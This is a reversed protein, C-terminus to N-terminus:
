HDKWVIEGCQNNFDVEVEFDHKEYFHILRDVHDWDREAIDGTIAPINQERAIHKLYNMCITGYGKNAPGKIDGIHITDDKKQYTAHLSFDWTGQFPTECDSIMITCRKGDDLTYVIVWRDDNTQEIGIVNWKKAIEKLNEQMRFMQFELDEIEEKLEEPDNSKEMAFASKYLM